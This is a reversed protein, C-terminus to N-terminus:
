LPSEEGSHSEVFGRLVRLLREPPDTKSIFADAGAVMAAREAESRMSLVIIVPGEQQSQLASVLDAPPQGPMEWDLLVMDIRAAQMKALLGISEGTQGVVELGLVQELVTQLASRLEPEAEAVFVRM